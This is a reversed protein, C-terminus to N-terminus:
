MKGGKRRQDTERFFLAVEGIMEVTDKNQSKLMTEMIKVDEVKSENLKKM